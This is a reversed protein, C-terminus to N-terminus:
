QRCFWKSESRTLMAVIRVASKLLVDWCVACKRLDHM